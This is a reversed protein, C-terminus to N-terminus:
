KMEQIGDQRTIVFKIALWPILLFTLVNLKTIGLWCYFIVDIEHSSLGFMPGHVKYVLQGMLLTVGLGVFLLLFGLVWCYFLIDGVAKFVIRTQETM